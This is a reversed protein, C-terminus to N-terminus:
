EDRFQNIFIFALAGMSLTSEGISSVVTKLPYLYCALNWSIGILLCSGIIFIGLPSLASPKGTRMQKALNLYSNSIIAFIIISVLGMSNALNPVIGVLADYAGHAVVVIIFNKFFNEWNKVPNLILYYMSLGVIATLSTHLFNATLFRPFVASEFGSGFYLINESCAFGLGVCAACALAEMASQRKKLIILFPAFFIIKILEERLGIGCICYIIDNVTEGNIKLGLKNEQWYVLGLVLFTSIFGSIFASSYLTLRILFDEILQGLNAIIAFWILAAFLTVIIWSLSLKGFALHYSKLTLSVWLELESAIFKFTKFDINEKLNQDNFLAKAEKKKGKEILSIIVKSKSYLSRPYKNFELKYFQEAREQEGNSNLADAYFESSFRIPEKDLAFAKLQSLHIENKKDFRVLAFTEFLKREKESLINQPLKLLLATQYNGNRIINAIEVKSFSQGQKFILVNKLSPYNNTEILEDLESHTLWPCSDKLIKKIEVSEPAKSYQIIFGLLVAIIGVSLASYILFNRNRSFHLVKKYNM